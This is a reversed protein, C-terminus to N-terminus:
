FFIVLFVGVFSMAFSENSGKFLHIESMLLWPCRFPHGKKLPCKKIFINLQCRKSTDTNLPNFVIPSRKALLKLWGMSVNLFLAPKLCRRAGSADSPLGLLETWKYYPRYGWKCQGKLTHIMHGYEALGDTQFNCIHLPPVTELRGGATTDCCFFRSPMQTFLFAPLASCRHSTGINNLTPCGFQGKVWWIFSFLGM